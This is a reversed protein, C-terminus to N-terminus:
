TSVPCPNAMLAILGLLGGWHYFPYSRSGCGQGIEASYNEHLARVTIGGVTVMSRDLTKRGSGMSCQLVFGEPAKEHLMEAANACALDRNDVAALLGAFFTDWCCLVYGGSAASWNRSVPTIVRDHAPDYITNWAVCSRIAEYLEAGDGFAECQAAYPERRPAIIRQIEDM